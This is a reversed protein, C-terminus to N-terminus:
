ISKVRKAPVGAYLSKEDLIGRVVSGAAVIVRSHIYSGGIIRVGCGVWVDSCICTHNYIVPNYKIPLDLLNATHEFSLISSNHAISVNDGIDIGGAGDLYCNAHISINNGVSIGDM